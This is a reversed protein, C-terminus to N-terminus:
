QKILSQLTGRRAEFRIELIPNFNNPDLKSHLEDANTIATVLSSRDLNTSLLLPETTALFVEVQRQLAQQQEKIFLKTIAAEKAQLLQTNAAEAIAANSLPPPTFASALTPKYNRQAKYLNENISWGLMFALAVCLVVALSFPVSKM